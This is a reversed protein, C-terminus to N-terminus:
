EAPTAQIRAHERPTAENNNGKRPRGPVVGWGPKSSRYATPQFFKTGNRISIPASEPKRHNLRGGARIKMPSAPLVNRPNKRATFLTWTLSMAGLPRSQHHGMAGAM